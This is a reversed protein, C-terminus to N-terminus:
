QSYVQYFMLFAMLFAIYSVTYMINSMFIMHFSYTYTYINYIDFKVNDFPSFKCDIIINVYNVIWSKM